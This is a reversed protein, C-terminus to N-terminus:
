ADGCLTAPREERRLQEAMRLIFRASEEAEPRPTRFVPASLAVRTLIHLSRVPQSRAQVTNSLLELVALGPTLRRPKWRGRPRYRTSLVLGIPLGQESPFPCEVQVTDDGGQPRRLRLRRPFPHVLGEDDILAYEDSLYSAGLELLSRVLTTKGVGSAGPLLIARGRWAVVGAHVFLGLPSNRATCLQFEEELTRLVEGPHRSRAILAGNYYALNLRRIRSGPTDDHLVVYFLHEVVDGKESRWFPPLHPVLRALGGPCNVRLGMRVGFSSFVMGEAWDLRDM